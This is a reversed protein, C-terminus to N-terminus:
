GRSELQTLIISRCGFRKKKKKGREAGKRGWGSSASIRAKKGEGKLTSRGAAVNRSSGGLDRQKEWERSRGIGTWQAKLDGGAHVGENPDVGKKKRSKV